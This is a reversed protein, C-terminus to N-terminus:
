FSLFTIQRVNSLGLDSNPLRAMQGTKPHQSKVVFQFVHWRASAPFWAVPRNRPLSCLCGTPHSMRPLIRVLVAQRLCGTPRCLRVYLSLSGFAARLTFRSRRPLDLYVAALCSRLLLLDPLDQSDVSRSRVGARYRMDWPYTLRTAWPPCGYYPPLRFPLDDVAQM